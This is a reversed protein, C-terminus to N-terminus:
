KPYPFEAILEGSNRMLIAMSVCLYLVYDTQLSSNPPLDFQFKAKGPYPPALDVFDAVVSNTGILMFRGPEDFKTIEVPVNSPKFELAREWAFLPAINGTNVQMKVVSGSANFVFIV